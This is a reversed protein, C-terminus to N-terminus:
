PRQKVIGTIKETQHKDRQHDTPSPQHKYRDCPSLPPSQLLITAFFGRITRPKRDHESLNTREGNQLHREAEDFPQIVLDAHDLASTVSQTIFVVEM